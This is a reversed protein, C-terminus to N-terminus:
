HIKFIINKHEDDFVLRLSIHSSNGDKNELLDFLVDKLLDYGLSTRAFIDNFSFSSIGFEQKLVNIDLHTIKGRVIKSQKSAMDDQENFKNISPFSFPSSIFFTQTKLNELFFSNFINEFLHQTDLATKKFREILQIKFKLFSDIKKIIQDQQAYSCIPIQLKQLERMSLGERSIGTQVREIEEKFIPSSIYLQVYKNLKANILRIIAVHQSVNAAINNENLIASRGISAGTINLLIDDKLVQTGKMKNHVEDTIMVADSFDIINNKINQSRLFFVGEDVYVSKGGKPTSGAGIKESIEGLTCWLWDKPVKFPGENKGLSKLDTRSIQRNTGYIEKLIKKVESISGGMSSFVGSFCEYLIAEELKGINDEQQKLNNKIRSFQLETTKYLNILK